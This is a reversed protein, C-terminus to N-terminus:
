WGCAKRLPQLAGELGTIDFELQIPNESYPTAEMLLTTGGALSKIVPISSGGDWLGLHEHSTSEEMSLKGPKRNDVRYAVDGYSDYRSSSMFAGGFHVVFSTTNDRCQIFLTAFDESGFRGPVPQKSRTTLHVNTADTMADKETRINWAGFQGNDPVQGARVLSDNIAKDSSSAAATPPFVADWCKLREADDAIASCKQQGLAGSASGILIVLVLALGRM